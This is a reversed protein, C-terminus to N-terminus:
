SVNIYAMKTQSFLLDNVTVRTKIFLQRGIIPNTPDVLRLQTVSLGPLVDGRSEARSTVSALYREVSDVSVIM